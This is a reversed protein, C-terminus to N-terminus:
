SIIVVAFVILELEARERVCVGKYVAYCQAFSNLIYIVLQSVSCESDLLFSVVVV